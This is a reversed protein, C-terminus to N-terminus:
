LSAEGREQDIQDRRATRRRFTLLRTQLKDLCPTTKSYFHRLKGILAVFVVYFVVDSLTAIDKADRLINFIGVIGFGDQM